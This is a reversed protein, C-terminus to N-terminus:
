YAVGLGLNFINRTSDERFWQYDTKLVVQPHLKFSLGATVVKETPRASYGFETLADDYKRATNFAEYRAFPSLTHDGASWAKYAAQVYWGDFRKPVPYPNGVQTLNYAETNSFQGIAYLTSLDWNGPTWRAHAEALTLRADPSAFDAQKQAVGGHFIGGGANFGPIGNYNLAGYVALNGAKALQGEQHIAGLPSEIAEGDTSDWKTLDFGTTVGADWRLGFDTNGTLGLGIERWTTPIIATEVFNRKVGYYNPPEHSENMYGLPILYLGAKAALGDNIQHEIYAQEIAVEGSDDASVVAHEVELETVFKTRENFQHGLGFVVRGATAQTAAADKPRSYSLEAYGFLSTASEHEAAAPAPATQPSPSPTPTATALPAVAPALPASPMPVPATKKVADLEARLRQVEERLARMEARLDEQAIAPTTSFLAALSAAILTKKM